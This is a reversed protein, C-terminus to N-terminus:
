KRGRRPQSILIGRPANWRADIPTVVDGLRATKHIEEMRARAAENGSLAPEIRAVVTGHQILRLTEGRKVRALYTALHQRLESISVDNVGGITRRPLSSKRRTLASRHM